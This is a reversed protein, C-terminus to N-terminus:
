ISQKQQDKKDNICLSKLFYYYYLVSSLNKNQKTKNAKIAVLVLPLTIILQNSTVPFHGADLKNRGWYPAVFAYYLLFVSRIFLFVRRPFHKARRQQQLENINRYQYTAVLRRSCVCVRVGGTTQGQWSITETKNEEIKIHRTQQQQRSNSAECIRTLVFIPYASVTWWTEGLKNLLIRDEDLRNWSDLGAAHGVIHATHPLELAFSGFSIMRWFKFQWFVYNWCQALQLSHRCDWCKMQTSHVGATTQLINTCCFFFRKECVISISFLSLNIEHQSSLCLSYLWWSTSIRPRMVNLKFRHIVLWSNDFEFGVQTVIEAPELFMYYENTQKKTKQTKKKNSKKRSYTRRWSKLLWWIEHATPWSFFHTKKKPSHISPYGKFRCYVTYIPTM